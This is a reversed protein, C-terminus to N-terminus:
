EWEKPHFGLSNANESVIRKLADSVGAPFDASIEITVRVTANPDAALQEIIDAAISSRAFGVPM